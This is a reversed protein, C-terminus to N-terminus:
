PKSAIVVNQHIHRGQLTKKIAEKIDLIPTTQECEIVVLRAARRAIAYSDAVVVLVPQGHYQIEHSTLLVDGPFVPGIDLKGPVDDASLIRKVGAFKM